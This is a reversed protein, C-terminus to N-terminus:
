GAAATAQSAFRRPGRLWLRRAPHSTRDPPRVAGTGQLRARGHGDLEVPQARHIDVAAWTLIQGPKRARARIKHHTVTPSLAQDPQGHRSTVIQRDRPTDAHDPL